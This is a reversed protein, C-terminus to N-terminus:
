GAKILCSKPRRFDRCFVADPRDEALVEEATEYFRGITHELDCGAIALEDIVDFACLLVGVICVGIRRSERSRFDFKYHAVTTIHASQRRRAKVDDKDAVKELM